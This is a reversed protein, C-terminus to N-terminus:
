ARYLEPSVIHAYKGRQRVLELLTSRLQDFEFPKAAVPILAFKSPIATDSLGTAFVFPIGLEELRDAVPYCKGDTVCVDLIALDPKSEKLLRLADGNSSAGVAQFSIDKAWCILMEAILPEDELILLRPM